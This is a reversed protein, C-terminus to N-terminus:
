VNAVIYIITMIIIVILAASTIPAEKIWNIM